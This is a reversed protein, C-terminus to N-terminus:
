RRAALRLRRIAAPISKRSFISNGAVLVTAGKSVILGANHEDVGGDVELEITRRGTQKIMASVESIKALMPEIFRQGSFGPNVTMVLVLDVHPVINKLVKAPTPPNLTVGAKMGLEKIQEITRRLHRCTEVHVTIRDVGADRFASLYKEPREIMLHADLPLKTLSRVAKVIFPGFTINPVFHGDMIDLHIWDAGGREVLRIQKELNRFDASLLSPAIKIRSANPM